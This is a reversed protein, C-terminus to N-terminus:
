KMGWGLVIEGYTEMIHGFNIDDYQNFLGCHKIINETMEKDSLVDELKPYTLAINPSINDTNIDNLTGVSHGDYCKFTYSHEKEDGFVDKNVLVVNNKIIFDKNNM